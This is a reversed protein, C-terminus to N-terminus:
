TYRDMTGIMRPTTMAVRVSIENSINANHLAKTAVNPNERCDMKELFTLTKICNEYLLPTWTWTLILICTCGLRVKKKINKTVLVFSIKASLTTGRGKAKWEYMVSYQYDM